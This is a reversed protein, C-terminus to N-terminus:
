VFYQPIGQYMEPPPVFLDPPEDSPGFLIFESERHNRPMRFISAANGCRYTYNPASWVTVCLREPEFHWQFGNPALQHARAVLELRNVRCFERIPTRGFVFGSGRPNQAWGEIEDDPDSWELDSLPGEVPLEM